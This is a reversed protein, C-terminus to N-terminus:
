YAVLKVGEAQSVSMVVERELEKEREREAVDNEGFPARQVLSGSTANCCRM